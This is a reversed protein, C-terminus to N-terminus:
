GHSTCVRRSNRSRQTRLRYKFLLRISATTIRSASSGSYINSPTVSKRAGPHKTAINVRLAAEKYDVEFVDEMIGGDDTESGNESEWDTLVEIAECHRM